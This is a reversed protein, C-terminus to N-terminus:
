SVPLGVGKEDFIAVGCYLAEVNFLDEFLRVGNVLEDCGAGVRLCSVMPHARRYLIRHTLLVRGWGDASNNRPTKNKLM